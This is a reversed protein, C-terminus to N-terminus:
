PIGLPSPAARYSSHCTLPNRPTSLIHAMQCASCYRRCQQMWTAYYRSPCIADPPLPTFVDPHHTFTKTSFTQQMGHRVAMIISEPFLVIAERLTHPTPQPVSNACKNSTIHSCLHFTPSTHDYVTTHGARLAHTPCRCYGSLCITIRRWTPHVSSNVDDQFQDDGTRTRQALAIEGFIPGICM